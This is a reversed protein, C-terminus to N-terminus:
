LIQMTFLKKLQFLLLDKPLTRQVYGFLGDKMKHKAVM